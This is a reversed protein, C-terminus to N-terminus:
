KRRKTGAKKIHAEGFGPRKTPAQTPIFNPVPAPPTDVADIVNDPPPSFPRPLTIGGGLGSGPKHNVVLGAPIGYPNTWTNIWYTHNDVAGALFAASQASQQMQADMQAKKANLERARQTAKIYSHDWESIGYVPKPRLICSEPPVYVGIGRRLAELIFFHCGSRQDGYEENAAMDVGWYGIVDDKDNEELLTKDHIDPLQRELAREKRRDEIQLIAMASMLSLSSHLFYASFEQEVREIPYVEHNRIQPVPGGTMVKGRFQEMFSVYEPSLWPKGPEWRHLEFWRTAREMIAWLGPSCGWIEWTEDAWEPTPFQQTKGSWQEYTADRFPALPASSPASGCLAIKM